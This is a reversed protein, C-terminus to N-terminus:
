SVQVSLIWSLSIADSSITQNRYKASLYRLKETLMDRKCQCCCNCALWLIQGQTWPDGLSNIKLM